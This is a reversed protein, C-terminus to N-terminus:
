EGIIDLLLNINQETWEPGFKVLLGDGDKESKTFRGLDRLCFCGVYEGKKIQPSGCVTCKKSILNAPLLVSRESRRLSQTRGGKSTNPVAKPSVGMMKDAPAQPATPADQRVKHAYGPTEAAMDDKVLKHKECLGSESERCDKCKIKDKNSKLLNTLHTKLMLDISNGLASFLKHDINDSKNFDPKVGLALCLMAALHGSSANEFDLLVDDVGVSGQYGNESKFFQLVSNESGPIGGDYDWRAALNIWGWVTRPALLNQLDESKSGAKELISFADDGLVSKMFEKLVLDQIM